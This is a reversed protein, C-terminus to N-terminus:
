GDAKLSRSLVDAYSARASALNERRHHLSPFCSVAADFLPALVYDIFGIQLKAIDVDTELKRMFPAPELGLAIEAEIMLYVVIHLSLYISLSFFFLLIGAHKRFEDVILQGWKLAIETTLTQASLDSCHVVMHILCVRGEENLVAVKEGSTATPTTAGSSVTAAPSSSSSSSPPSSSSSYSSSSSSPVSLSAPSATPTTAGGAAAAAALLKALKQTSEVISGHMTMDTALIGTIVLRRVAKKEDPHLRALIDKQPDQLLRFTQSCHHNELVARDNYTIALPSQTAVQFGNSNGPHDLDHCYAAIMCSLKEVPSLYEGAPSYRLFMFTMQLVSFAHIFNHFPNEDHYLARVAVIFNSFIPRPILFYNFLGLSEFMSEVMDLLVTDFNEKSQLAFLDMNWNCCMAAASESFGGGGTTAGGNSTTSAGNANSSTSMSSVSTSHRKSLQRERMMPWMRGAGVCKPVGNLGAIERQTYGVVFSSLVSNQLGGDDSEAKALAMEM